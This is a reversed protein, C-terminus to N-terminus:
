AAWGGTPQGMAGPSGPEHDPRIFRALELGTGGVPSRLMVLETRSHPMGLVTDLLEGKLVTRGETEFGPGVFFGTVADLDAVTSGVHDFRRVPSTPHRRQEDMPTVSLRVRDSSTLTHTRTKVRALDSESSVSWRLMARPV